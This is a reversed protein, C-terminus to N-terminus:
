NELEIRIKIVRADPDNRKIVREHASGREDTRDIEINVRVGNKDYQIDPRNIGVENGNIDYQRQNKRITDPNVGPTRKLKEIIKNILRDHDLNGHRGGNGKNPESLVMEQLADSVAYQGAEKADFRPDHYEGTPSPTVLLEVAFLVGSARLLIRAVGLGPPPGLPPLKIVNPLARQVVTMEAARELARPGGGKLFAERAAALGASIGAAAEPGAMGTQRGDPDILVTPRHHTSAFSSLNVPAFVGGMGPLDDSSGGNPIYAGILPDVSLWRAKQADLYRAGFYVLGTEEDLEKGTFLFRQGKQPGGDSDSRPDRWVEGYPFYEVHEHVRANQDTVWSTSGLHDPHYYYTEPRVTTDDYFHNIVPTGGSLVPCKQPDYNSPECGNENPLGDGVKNGDVGSSPVQLTATTSTWGPPPLLKSALRTSGAFIHKTAARRGKLSWFQGITISEGGRGLKVVRDGGADYIFRTVNRGGGDVVRDLRNEETWSYTRLHDSTVDCTASGHDRCERVTNGNRDYVLLTEGIRTAQHPAPNSYAYAFEHNTKPPREATVGAADGHVIEHIQVNSTMNHIDSYAYQATFRDITHVRARAEGTAWTLRYLDDYRYQYSVSGSRDGVPDGIGNTMTLINGVRDYGYSINQLVRGAPTATQLTSLRRALPEYTYDTRVGNGLLMSVRQGFEDYMLSSLYPEVQTAGGLARHGAARELLGGADYGYKVQEGDPYTISMMRGFADFSFSTTFRRERDGPLIPRLIRTTATVEGLKGYSREERGADDTVEIVRGAGNRGPDGGPAGYTYHVNRRPDPYRVDTLQDFDYVYEVFQQAEDLNPDFKKVVNGPRDLEYRILGTDPNQLSTRRGLLDYGVTTVNGGADIVKTMEGTRSYEYRTTPARGDIREEVAVIRDGADKYAAKSHGEADTTVTTFRLLSSQAHRGFGYSVRTIANNPELTEIMRGLPDYIFRTPNRPSGASYEPRQSFLGFTQGQLEVRGMADFVQHGTISWGLGKTTASTAIEATKKTQIVRGLGDMLVVTDVTGRTDGEERPLRNKTRAWAVGPSLSYRIAVTPADLSDNPGALRELRGFADVKRATVNGNLDTTETVEGFRPDYKATSAYGHSDSISTVYTGTAGDYGYTTTYSQNRSNPPGAATLLTGNDNWTLTTQATVGTALLASFTHLNGSPYYAATRQRLPTSSGPATITVSEPRSVSFLPSAAGADSAYVITAVTDDGPDAVDGDDTFTQVDGKGDYAFHQRTVIGPAPQGEYFRKEVQDLTALFSGCYEVSSLKAPTRLSCAEAAPKIQESDSWTNITEVWTRGAADKMVESTLLGKRKVSGNEFTQEVKSGDPNIRRVLSFGLFEREYRDHRGNDYRWETKLDHGVADPVPALGDRVTVSTMVWRSGPMAVTNGLRQEYALDIKGGLPRVVRKLLNAKGLQNLRAVVDDTESTKLVHDVLGDGDIDRLGLEFSSVRRPTLSTGGGIHLYPPTPLIGILPWAFNVSAGVTPWVSHTGTAELPNIGTLVTDTGIFQQIVANVRSSGVHLRPTIGTNWAQAANWARKPAFDFGRNVRVYFTSGGNAKFVQDPLGDGTVDVLEQHTAAISSEATVGFGWSESTPFGGKLGEIGYLASATGQVSLATSKRLARIAGIGGLVGEARATDQDSDEGDSGGFIEDVFGDSPFSSGNIAVCDESAAFSTGMNLRVSVGACSSGPPNSRVADPLGDGNIDVFQRVVRNASFAAGGGIGPSLSTATQHKGSPKLGIKVATVGLNFQGQLDYSLLPAGLVTVKRVSALSVPSTVRIDSRISEGTLLSTLHGVNFRRLDLMGGSAIVDVVGDGNMDALDQKQQTVGAGAGFGAIGLSVGASVNISASSRGVKGIAMKVLQVADEEGEPADEEASPSEGKRGAHILGAKFYTNGDQTVFADGTSEFGEEANGIRTGEHSPISAGVLRLRVRQPDEENKMRDKQAIVDDDGGDGWDATAADKTPGRFVWGQFAEGERGNWAGFRWGHYGGSLAPQNGGDFGEIRRDSTFHLTPEVTQPSGSVPVFQCQFQWTLVGMSDWEGGRGLFLSAARDSHAEFFVQDGKTVSVSSPYNNDAFASGHNGSAKFLQKDLTRISFYVPVDNNAHEAYSNFNLTGDAPAVWPKLTSAPPAWRSALPDVNEHMAFYTPAHFTLKAAERASPAVCGSQVTLCNFAGNVNFTVARPDVALDTDVRVFLTGGAAVSLEGLDITQEAATEGAELTRIFIDGEGDSSASDQGCPQSKPPDRNEEGVPRYYQVCMRVRDSTARKQLRATLALHGDASISVVGQPQGVLLFDQAADFRYLYAGTPDKLYRDGAPVGQYVILPAFEVQEVPSIAGDARMPFDSLTSLVFYILSGRTVQLGGLQVPTATADGPTKLWTGRSAPAETAFPDYTYIRLRVGDRREGASTPHAFKLVGTLDVLGDYPATWEIVADEPTLAEAMAADAGALTADDALLAASDGLDDIASMPESALKDTFCFRGAPCCNELSEGPGCSTSRAQNFYVKGKSILDPLGDGNADAIFDESTSLNYAAGFNASLISAFVQLSADFSQGVDKGLKKSGLAPDVTAVGLPDAPDWGPPQQALTRAPGGNFRVSPSDGVLAQLWNPNSVEDPLGDGNVDVFALETTSRRQGYGFGLGVTGAGKSPGWGLGVFGHFGFGWEGNATLGSSPSSANWVVPPGFLTVGDQDRAVNEYEFSHSYFLQEGTGRVDIRLLRSKGLEGREYVFDYKRVLGSPSGALLQVQVSGLRRRMVTKFGARASVVEDERLGAEHLLEVLYPGPTGGDLAVAETRSVTGSYRISRPYLQRFPERHETGGPAPSDLQYGYQTLNGNADVVRELHWEAIDFTQPFTQAVTIRPVYSRLRANEGRGYVYLTGSKDIVQFWYETPDAGCRRIALFAGEVRPHYERAATGDLCTGPSATDLPVIAQGGLLYREEGDYEPVGYRTDVSVKPISVDWGVGVWGNGASSDYAVALSPQHAGRAKPLRIPFSLQASGQNNGQPPEILDIGASPDAAKLDKISNPNFSVPGPHDPLVLVANIMFTFHTTESEVQRTSRLVAKRPLSYWRDQDEDFYYTQVEEPAVGEPLLDPDYPLTVKVPKAFKQGRPTFRYGGHAPATVNIMGAELRPIVEGGKRTVGIQTRGAVAGPPAEISVDTGLRVKGGGAPDFTGWATQNERGFREDLTGTGSGNEAGLLEGEKDEDLNVTRVVESGDPFRATLTVEWSGTADLARRLPIGFAGRDDVSAGDVEVTGVGSPSEAWGALFARPGFREGIEKGGRTTTCPYSLVIRPAGVRPGIPSGRASLEAVAAAPVDARAAGAFTLELAAVPGTVPLEVLSDTLALGGRENWATGDFVGLRDLTAPAHGLRLQAVEADIARDLVFRHAGGGVSSVTSADGDVAAGLRQRTERDFVATGDDLVVLLRLGTLNVNGDADDPLCLLLTDGGRLRAPDLEETHTKADKVTGLWFGERPADGDFSRQLAVARPVNAEFALYARVAQLPEFAPFKATVCPSGDVAGGPRLTASAVDPRLVWVNEYTGADDSATTAALTALDRPALSGGAGWVEIERLGAGTGAPDLTLALTRATRPEALTAEAWGAADKSGLSGGPISVALSSAGHVKVRRIEVEHGFDFTVTTRQAVVVLATTDRDVLRPADVGGSAVTSLPSLRIAERTDPPSSKACGMFTAACAILIGLRTGNLSM